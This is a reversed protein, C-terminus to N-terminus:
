PNITNNIVRDSLMINLIQNTHQLQKSRRRQLLYYLLSLLIGLFLVAILLKISLPM